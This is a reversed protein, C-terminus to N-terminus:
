SSRELAVFEIVALLEPLLVKVAVQREHKQDVALYTAMGGRGIERTLVYRDLLVIGSSTM